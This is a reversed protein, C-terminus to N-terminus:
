KAEQRMEQSPATNSALKRTLRTRTPSTHCLEQLGDVDNLVINRQKVSIMGNDALSSLLRSVTELTLGLYSGIEERSMRLNFQKGSYGMAAFRESLNLLFRAVRAEASLSGLASAMKQERLLEQSMLNYIATDLHDYAKGVDILVQLPVMIVDCDCLAVAESAYAKNYIGDIGILDGRMPFNLIYQHGYEDLMVSKLFGSYVIYLMEFPQGITYICQGAKYHLHQFVLDSEEMAETVPIQLLQCIEMLSSWLPSGTRQRGATPTMSFVSSPSQVSSSLSSSM